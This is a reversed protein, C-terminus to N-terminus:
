KKRLISTRQPKTEAHLSPTGSRRDTKIKFALLEHLPLKAHEGSLEIETVIQNRAAVPRWGLNMGKSPQVATIPAVALIRGARDHVVYCRSLGTSM